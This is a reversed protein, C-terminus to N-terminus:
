NRDGGGHKQFCLRCYTAPETNDVVHKVPTQSRLWAFIAKLDEDSMNRYFVWPMVGHLKRAGVKGTRIVQIFMKEDYYSIGSPDPTLNPSFIKEGNPAEILNGGGFLQGNVASGPHYWDTHCGACDAVFELFEGRDKPSDFKPQPVVDTIPQLRANFRFRQSLTLQTKPLSNRVAPISRLYVVISAVDEDPLKSFAAAWMQPHLARGDHGIGERISRALMDDTWNGAGTERDPTINPATLNPIGEKEFRHGAGKAGELVPAGDQSWDRESHCRFCALAGEVLYQGRLRRTETREFAIDRLPRRRPGVMLRWASYYATWGYSYGVLVGVAALLAVAILIAKKMIVVSTAAVDYVAGKELDGACTYGPEGVDKRM